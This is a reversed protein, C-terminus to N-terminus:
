EAAHLSGPMARDVSGCLIPSLDVVSSRRSTAGQPLTEFAKGAADFLALEVGMGLRRALEQALDVSVGRPAATEADRQALVTSVLNIAARLVGSPALDSLVAPDISENM